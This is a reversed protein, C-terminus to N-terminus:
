EPGGCRYVKVGDAASKDCPMWAPDSEPDPEWDEPPETPMQPEGADDFTVACQDAFEPDLQWRGPMRGGITPHKWSGHEEMWYDLWREDGGFDSWIEDRPIWRAYITRCKVDTFAHGHEAAYAAIATGRKYSRSDYISGLPDDWSGWLCDSFDPITTSM